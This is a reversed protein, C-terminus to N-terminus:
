VGSRKVDRWFFSEGESYEKESKLIMEIEQATLEEQDYEDEDRIKQAIKLLVVIKEEPLENVIEVLRDKAISM